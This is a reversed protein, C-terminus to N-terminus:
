KEDLHIAVLHANVEVRRSVQKHPRGSQEWQVKMRGSVFPTTGMTTVNGIAITILEGEHTGESAKATPTVPDGFVINTVKM